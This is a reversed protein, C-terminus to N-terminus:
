LAQQNENGVWKNMAVNIYINERVEQEGLPDDDNGEDETSDIIPMRMRGETTWIRLKM